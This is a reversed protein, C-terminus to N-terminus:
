AIGPILRYKVRDAYECYAPDRRLFKEEEVTRMLFATWVLAYIAANFPSFFVLLFGLQNIMYGLYMPHRVFRYIGGSKVGRNAAVLGFSRGLFVKASLSVTGGVLALWLAVTDSILRTGEPMVLLGAGTGILAVLLPFFETSWEGRRQMLIMVVGVLESALFIPIQPHAFAQPALRMIVGVSLMVFFIREGWRIFEAM